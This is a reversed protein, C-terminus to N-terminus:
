SIWNNCELKPASNAMVEVEFAYKIDRRRVEIYKSYTILRAKEIISLM